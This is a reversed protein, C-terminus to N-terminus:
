RKNIKMQVICFQRTNLLVVPWDDNKLEIMTTEDVFWRINDDHIYQGQMWHALQGTSVPM